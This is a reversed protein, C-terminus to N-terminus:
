VTELAYPDARLVNILRSIGEQMHRLNDGAMSESVDIVLFVPLRRMFFEWKSFFRSQAVSAAARCPM